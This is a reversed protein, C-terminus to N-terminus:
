PPYLHSELVVKVCTRRKFYMVYIPNPHLIGSYHKPCNERIVLDVAGAKLASQNYYFLRVVIIRM